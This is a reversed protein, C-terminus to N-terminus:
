PKMTMPSKYYLYTYKDNTTVTVTARIAYGGKENEKHGSADITFTSTGATTIYPLMFKYNEGVIGMIDQEHMEKSERLTIIADAIEPTMGPIAMLVEKTAANVNIRKDKSNVTLFDIVGKKEGSGYLIAQSIGKVLLLEELTDFKADKAIYPNPLSMYYDSEAGHLRHLDDSDRWDMISDVITDVEDSEIGLNLFLNKLIVESATNIDIKGSEDSIRVLYFGDGIQGKYSTGDTKWIERGELEVSQNKYFNRYFLEMIGREIGGEAIFKREIGGKFSITAYTETRATFSFSLVIVMLITLVWLVILLAIGKQSALKQQRTRNRTNVPSKNKM